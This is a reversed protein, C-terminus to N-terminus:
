PRLEQDLVLALRHTPARALVERVAFRSEELRGAAYLCGALAYRVDADEGARRLYDQLHRELEGLRDLPVALTILGHLAARHGPDINRAEAYAQWAEETRVLRDLCLGLATWADADGGAATSAELWQRATGLDGRELAIVGLGTEARCRHPLSELLVRFEREAEDFRRLQAFAVARLEAIVIPDAGAHAARGAESLAREHDGAIRARRAAAIAEEAVVRAAGAAARSGRRALPVIEEYAALVESATREWTFAHARACAPAPDRELASAIARRISEPEDPELYAITDGLYDEVAGWSSAAVRSGLWAAELSVLGPLEYWSPLCHVAAERFAAALMAPALHDLVLTPGRRHLGRCLAAYQPNYTFRGGVLVVPCPDDRLAELLMLQNKRTELRGVCLVFDRVGYTAAFAGAAASGGEEAHQDAGFPIVRVDRAAPYDACLRQRESEGCALLLRAHAATVTNDAAVAEPLDRVRALVAGFTLRDLRVATRGREPDLARQFLLYAATSLRDFRPWDEYLTTVVLPVGAREAREAFGRTVEPTAFNITHVVDTGPPVAAEASFRVEVGRAGLQRMLNDIVVTDGGPQTFLTPRAQFLVRLRAAAPLVAVTGGAAPVPEAAVPTPRVTAWRARFRERSERNLAFAAKFSGSSGRELHVLVSGAAYRVRRGAARARLCLDIDEFYMRYGEDFGGLAVFLRRPLLMCAGTVAECDRDHAVASADGPAGQHLHVPEFDATFGVGAHQVTGNPYLLRAGVVGVDPDTEAVAVLATLWGPQPVTDNNLFVVYTGRAHRAGTNCARAFGDNAANRIVSLATGFSALLEPTEDTSGNDVVIVEFRGQSSAALAELCRRTLDACNFVPIVISVTAESESPSRPRFANDPPPTLVRRGNVDDCPMREDGAGVAAAGERV